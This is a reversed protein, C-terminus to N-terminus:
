KKTKDELLLDSGKASLIAEIPRAFIALIGPLTMRCRVKADLVEVSADVTQGMATVQLNLTDGQWGSKVDAGGPIHGALKDVNDAIRRRAEDKGLKHPLDVEIPREM